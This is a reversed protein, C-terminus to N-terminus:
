ASEPLEDLVFEEHEAALRKRDQLPSDDFEEEPGDLPARLLLLHSPQHSQFLLAETRILRHYHCEKSGEVLVPFVCAKVSCHMSPATVPPETALAPPAAIEASIFDSPSPPINELCPQLGLAGSSRLIPQATNTSFSPLPFTLNSM